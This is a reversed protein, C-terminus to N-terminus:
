NQCLRNWLKTKMLKKAAYYYCSKRKNRKHELWKTTNYIITRTVLKNKFEIAKEVLYKQARYERLSRSGDDEDLWHGEEHLLTCLKHSITLGDSICIINPPIFLGVCEHGFEKEIIKFMKQSRHVHIGNKKIRRLEALYLRKIPSM